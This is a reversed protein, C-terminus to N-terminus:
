SSNWAVRGDRRQRWRTAATCAAAMECPRMWSTSVLVASTICNAHPSLWLSRGSACTLGRRIDRPPTAPAPLGATRRRGGGTLAGTRHALPSRSSEILCRSITMM